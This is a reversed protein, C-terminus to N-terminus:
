LSVVECKLRTTKGQSDHEVGLIDYTRGGTVVARMLTTIAPYYGRLAIHTTAIAVTETRTRDERAEPIGPSIPAVACPLNVHNALNVWNATPQGATDQGGADQQITITSPYFAALRTLM